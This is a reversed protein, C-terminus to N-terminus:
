YNFIVAHKFTSDFCFSHRPEGVLSGGAAQYGEVLVPSATLAVHEPIAVLFVM